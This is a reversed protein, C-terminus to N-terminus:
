NEYILNSQDSRQSTQGFYDLPKKFDDFPQSSYKILEVSSVSTPSTTDMPNCDSDDSFWKFKKRKTVSCPSIGYSSTSGRTSSITSDMMEVGSDSEASKILSPMSATNSEDSRISNISLNAKRKSSFM